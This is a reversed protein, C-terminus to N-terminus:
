TPTSRLRMVSVVVMVFGFFEVVITADPYRGLLSSAFPILGVPLLFLLNLWVLDRNVARVRLFLDRHAVWYMATVLFSIVWAVLTPRLEQLVRHLSAESLNHPVAIELVLITLVIAFVGDTLAVVRDPSTLPGLQQRIADGSPGSGRDARDDALDTM